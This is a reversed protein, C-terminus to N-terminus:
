DSTKRRVARQDAASKGVIVTQEEYEADVYPRGFSKMCYKLGNNYILETLSRREMTQLPESQRKPANIRREAV